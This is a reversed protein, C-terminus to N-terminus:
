TSSYVAKLVRTGETSILNLKFASGCTRAQGGIGHIRRARSQTSAACRAEAGYAIQPRTTPPPASLKPGRASSGRRVCRHASGRGGECASPRQGIARWQSFAASGRVCGSAAPRAGAGYGLDPWRRLQWGLVMPRPVPQWACVRIGFASSGRGVGLDAPM